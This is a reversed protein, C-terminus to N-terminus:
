YDHKESFQYNDNNVKHKSITDEKNIINYTNKSRGNKQHFLSTYILSTGSIRNRNAPYWAMKEFGTGAGTGVLITGPVPYRLRPARDKKATLEGM